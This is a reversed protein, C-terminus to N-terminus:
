KRRVTKKEAIRKRRVYKTIADIETSIPHQFATNLRKAVPLGVHLRLQQHDHDLRGRLIIDGYHRRTERLFLRWLQLGMGRRKVNEHEELSLDSEILGGGGDADGWPYLYMTHVKRSIRTEIKGTRRDENGKMLKGAFTDSIFLRQEGKELPRSVAYVTCSFAKTGKEEPVLLFGTQAKPKRAM